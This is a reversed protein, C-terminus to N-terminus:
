DKPDEPWKLLKQIGAKAPTVPNPSKAFGDYSIWLVSKKQPM